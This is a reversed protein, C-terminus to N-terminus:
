TEKLWAPPARNKWKHLHAKGHKYYNRYNSIVNESIIYKTDMASPPLFFHSIPLNDPEASLMNLLGSTEVKHVKGYRHTYEKCHEYLYRYLFSYNGSSQRCWIACPHNVHTASYLETDRKDDLRWRKIKRGSSADIYQTGDLVRHATSLLQAAELIMKVCHSDVAWQACVQPDTHLYFINM